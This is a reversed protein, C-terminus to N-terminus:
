RVEGSMKSTKTRRVRPMRVRTVAEPAVPEEEPALGDREDTEVEPEDPPEM